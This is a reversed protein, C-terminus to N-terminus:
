GELSDTGESRPTILEVIRRKTDGEVVWRDGVSFRDDVFKLAIRDEVIRPLLFAVLENM